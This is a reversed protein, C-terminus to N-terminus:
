VRFWLTCRQKYVGSVYYNGTENGGSLSVNYQQINGTRIIADWWDTDVSLDHSMTPLGANQRAVTNIKSWEEADALEFPRSYHQIAYSASFDVKVAGNTGKKTTIVIAGDKARAGYLATAAAGKLVNISEIDDSNIDGARNGVDVIGNTRDPNYSGNDIPLGDIIFLPSSVTGISSAGRIQISSSGGVTGSSQAIQLGAIKGSLSNLV